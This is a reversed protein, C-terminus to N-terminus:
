ERRRGMLDTRGVLQSHLDNGGCLHSRALCVEGALQYQNRPVAHM